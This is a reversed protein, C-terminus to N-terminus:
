GHQRAWQPQGGRGKGHAPQEAPDPEDALEEPSLGVEQLTRGVTSGKLSTIVYGEPCVAPWKAVEEGEWIVNLQANMSAITDALGDKCDQSYVVEASM